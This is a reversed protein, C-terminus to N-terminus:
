WELVSQCFSCTPFKEELVEGCYPCIIREEEKKEKTPKKETPQEKPEEEEIGGPAGARQCCLGASYALCGGCHQLHHLGHNNKRAQILITISQGPSERGRRKSGPAEAKRLCRDRVGM